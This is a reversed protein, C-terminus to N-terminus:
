SPRPAPYEQSFDCAFCKLLGKREDFILNDKHGDEVGCSPCGFFYRNGKKYTPQGIANIIQELTIDLM